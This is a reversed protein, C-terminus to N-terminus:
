VSRIVLNEEIYFKVGPIEIDPNEKRIELLKKTNIERIEVENFFCPVLKNDTVKCKFRKQTNIKNPSKNLDLSLKARELKELEAFKLKSEECKGRIKLNLAENLVKKVQNKREIEAQNILKQCRIAQIQKYSLIKDKLVKESNECVNIMQKEKFVIDQYTKKASEKASKWYNTINEKHKKLAKLIEFVVGLSESDSIEIENSVKQIDFSQKKMEIENM